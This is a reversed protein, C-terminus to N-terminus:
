PYGRMAARATLLIKAHFSDQIHHALRGVGRKGKAIKQAKGHLHGHASEEQYRQAPFGVPVLQFIMAYQLSPGSKHHVVDRSGSEAKNIGVSLSELPRRDNDAVMLRVEVKHGDHHQRWLQNYQRLVPHPMIGKITDHNAIGVIERNGVRALHCIGYCLLYTFAIRDHNKGLPCTRGVAMDQSEM